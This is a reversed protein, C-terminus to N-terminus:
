VNVTMSDLCLKDQEDSKLLKSDDLHLKSTNIASLNEEAVVLDRDPRIM